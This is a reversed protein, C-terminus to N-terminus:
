VNQANCWRNLLFLSFITTSALGYNRPKQLLAGLEALNLIEGLLDCRNHLLEEAINIAGGQQLWESVPANFGEKRRNLLGASLRTAMVKRLLGKPKGDLLSIKSPLAFAFEVLRHDLMPVRGEVSAAMTAKDTLALVDGPLYTSVDLLMRSYTYGLQSERMLGESFEASIATTLKEYANKELLLQRCLSLNIGSVSSAWANVPSIARLARDPQILSWPWTVFRRIPYPFREAVWTPSGIRGPWHRLYGGFIEDAGAGNLLVKIGQAKAVRSLLFAPLIASDALPEDMMALLDEIGGLADERSMQIQTHETAYRNSVESAYYADRSGKGVFDITFTRLRENTTRAAFAVISSSDLGGSLFVGVPVDSRMQLRISDTLLEELREAADNEGGLWSEFDTVAWYRRCAIEGAGGISLYHAPPLRKVSQWVTETDPVYGLAIQKIIADPNLEAQLVARLARIDSAFIFRNRDKIYFLPKIGLRDRAIWLNSKKGDWLAFAFMGNLDNLARIGKEEYLHLIVEADSKTRFVHGHALLENRIEIHNYIEGNFVLYLTEDENTLPQHGGELDIISLRRFGLGIPGDIYSGDDDPGREVMRNTMASIQGQRVPENNFNFIGAVGCM